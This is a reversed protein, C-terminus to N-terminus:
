PAKFVILYYLNFKTSLATNTLICSQELRYESETKIHSYSSKFYIWTPSLLCGTVSLVRKTPKNFM